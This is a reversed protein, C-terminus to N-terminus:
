KGEQYEKYSREFDVIMAHKLIREEIPPLKMYDGFDEELYKKYYKPCCITTDEFKLESGEKFIEFSFVNSYPKRLPIRWAFLIDNDPCIKYKTLSKLWREYFYNKDAWLIFPKIIIYKIKSKWERRSKFTTIKVNDLKTLLNLEFIYKKKKFKNKPCGVMPMIDIFIGTYKQEYKHYYCEEIFATNKNHIKISNRRNVNYCDEDTLIELNEPLEKNLKYLKLYDEIPMALDMDDDWPIFGKHRIAGLCTGGIAYYKLNNNKCLISFERFIRLIEKHIKITKEEM